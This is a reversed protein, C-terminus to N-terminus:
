KCGLSQRAAKADQVASSAPYRVKVQGLTVCADQTQGLKGLSIGLQTLADPARPGDPSGSFSNLYARAANATQGMAALAQGRYFHAQGTLPGATYTQAFKRFLNAADQYKKAQLAAEARDFDSQEGVALDPAASVTGMENPATGNAAGAAALGQDQGQDGGGSGAQTPIAVGLLPTKKLKGIDCGKELECLRFNLDGIRRTGDQVVSSVRHQLEETQNTLQQLQATIADLREQVSGSLQPATSGGGAGPALEQKLGHVQAYLGDLEKRIDALTQTREPGSMTASAGVNQAFVPAAAGLGFTLAAALLVQPPMLRIGTM